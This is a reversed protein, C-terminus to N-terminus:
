IEYGYRKAQRRLQEIDRDISRLTEQTFECQDGYRGAEARIESRTSQLEWLSDEFQKKTPTNM